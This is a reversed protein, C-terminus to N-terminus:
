LPQPRGSRQFGCPFPGSGHYGSEPCTLRMTLEKLEEPTGFRSAAAFFSSVHYGFSAYYPHEPCQGHAAPHQLRSCDHPTSIKEAFERYTGIRGEEQAMGVHAEYIFPAEESPQFNRCQWAFPQAPHWVQANSILTAPDQVVRRAYAPIRDGCGDAWHVRLRYLDGHHLRHLPLRIEWVGEAPIRKLSLDPQEQWNSLQGGSFLAPMLRGNVFFDMRGRGTSGSTNMAPLSIRWPM